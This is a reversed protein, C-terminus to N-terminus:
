PPPFLWRPPTFSSVPSGGTLGNFPFRGWLKHFLDRRKRAEKSDAKIGDFQGKLTHVLETRIGKVADMPLVVKEEFVKSCRREM